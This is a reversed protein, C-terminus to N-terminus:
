GKPVFLTRSSPVQTFCLAINVKVILNSYDGNTARKIIKGVSLQIKTYNGPSWQSDSGCWYTAADGAKLETIIVLFSSSSVDEQLSFRSQHTAVNVCSNRHDGKCLFKRNNRHQPPYPCQVTLPRGVTGSMKKTQVCCWESVSPSKLQGALM